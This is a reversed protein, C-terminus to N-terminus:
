VVVTPIQSKWGEWFFFQPLNPAECALRTQCNIHSLRPKLKLIRPSIRVSLHTM